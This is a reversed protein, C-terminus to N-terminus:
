TFPSKTPADLDYPCPAPMSGVAEATTLSTISIELFRSRPEEPRMGGLPKERTSGFIIVPM